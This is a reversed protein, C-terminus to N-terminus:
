TSRYRTAPSRTMVAGVNTDSAAVGADVVRSIVDRETLIGVLRDDEVVMVYGQSAQRMTEVAAAVTQDPTATVRPALPLDGVRDSLLRGAVGPQAAPLDLGALDSGCNECLDVGAINDHGCNPCLM